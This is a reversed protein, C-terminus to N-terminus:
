LGLMHLEFSELTTDAGVNVRRLAYRDSKPGNLGPETGLGCTYDLEVLMRQTDATYDARTGNPYAFLDYQGLRERLIDRSQRLEEYQMELTCRSLIPHTHTHAGFDVLGTRQLQEIEPWDLTALPSDAPVEAPVGLQSHLDALAADKREVPLAKLRAALARYAAGRQEPTALSRQQDDLTVADKATTAVAHYLREPWAPQGTGIFSTVLFVTAPAQYRELVPAAATLVNRFGDDFTLVATHRPLPTGNEMRAIVERLPLITYQGALLRIQQEFDALALQCWNFVPLPWAAVGHYMVIAISGARSRRALPLFGPCKRGLALVKHPLTLMHADEFPFPCLLALIRVEHFRSRDHSPPYHFAGM